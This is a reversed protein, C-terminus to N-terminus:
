VSICSLFNWFSISHTVHSLMEYFVYMFDFFISWVIVLILVNGMNGLVYM